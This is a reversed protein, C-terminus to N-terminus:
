DEEELDMDFMADYAEDYSVYPGPDILTGGHVIAADEASQGPSLEIVRMGEDTEIIAFSTMM